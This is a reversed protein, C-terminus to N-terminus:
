RRLGEVHGGHGVAAPGSCVRRASAVDREALRWDRGELGVVESRGVIRSSLRDDGMFVAIESPRKNSTWVTRRGADHRAEYLMLLTRRTYDTAADRESGLDDLVLLTAAVLRDFTESTDLAAQPRLRYLLLPVRAFAMSREGSQWSENLVTCALRTKGTGVPGCLLLDRGDEGAHLFAQAAELAHRNEATRRWTAWRAERFERPVSPAAAHAATWCGCRRVRSVGEVVVPEWGPTRDCRKCGVSM